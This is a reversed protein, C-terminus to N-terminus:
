VGGPLDDGEAGPVTNFHEQIDNILLMLVPAPEDKVVNWVAPYGDGCVAAFLKRLSGFDFGGNRDVLEAVATVREVTDPATIPTPPETGDFEYPERPKHEARAQDRLSAWRSQKPEVAEVLEVAKVAKVAPATTKRSPTAATAM